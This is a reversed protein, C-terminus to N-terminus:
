NDVKIWGILRNISDKPMKLNQRKISLLDSFDRLVKKDESSIPM